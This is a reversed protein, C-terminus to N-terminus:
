GVHVAAGARKRHGVSDDIALAPLRAEFHPLIVGRESQIARWRREEGDRRVSIVLSPDLGACSVAARVLDAETAIGANAVHWIGCEGDIVLDLTAHVFDGSATPSDVIHDDCGITRGEGVQALFRGLRHRQMGLDFFRGPRVILAFPHARRVAREISWLRRGAADRPDPVDSETLPRDGGGGFVAAGSVRVLPLGHRRCWQAVAAGDGRRPPGGLSGSVDIVAWPDAEAFSEIAELGGHGHRRYALGRAKCIRAFVAALSGTGLVLLPREASRNRASRRRDIPGISECALLRRRRRWWGRGALAPHSGPRGMSLQRALTALATRRPVTARVDFAGVEYHGDARTLLSNWDRLGFIGWLTVARIDVGECRLQTAAGWVENLWRLQEERTCGLNVETVALPLGHRQWAQWLLAQPGAAGEARVRVAEVDVYAHRGNGGHLAQPYRDLRDDLFRESTLYYNFGLLDPPCPHDAFWGLEGDPVGVWRLYDWMPHGRVVRGLLLDISLWRRENEFDAQYALRPASYVRCLDETQILRADPNVARIARMSLVVGRCQNLLAAAWTRADRGHPYWHGYLGSFRATTLPENVPTYDTVWPYRRAVATAHQALGPAFAPDVLSTTPPGSGHHILGLIPRIGRRRLGNVWHDTCTWFADGDRAAREWLAPMRFARPNLSAIRDLDGERSGLGCLDWQDVAVDGVRVVSCEAGAWLEIAPPPDPAPGLHPERQM